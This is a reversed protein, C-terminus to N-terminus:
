VISQCYKVKCITNGVLVHDTICFGSSKRERNCMKHELFSGRTYFRNTPKQCTGTTRAKWGAYTTGNVTRGLVHNLFIPDNSVVAATLHADLSECLVLVKDLDSDGYQTVVQVCFFLQSQM